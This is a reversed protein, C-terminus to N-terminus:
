SANDLPSSDYGLQRTALSAVVIMLECDRLHNDRRIQRWVYSIRGNAEKKEERIEATLQQIYEQTTNKAITWTGIQGSMLEALINKTADNSWVYRKVRKGLGQRKTGM